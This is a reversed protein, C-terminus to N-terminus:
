FSVKNLELTMLRAFEKPFVSRATEDVRQVVNRQRIMEPISLTKLARIPKRSRGERAFIMVLGGRTEALFGRKVLMRPRDKRIKVTVGLRKKGFRRSKRGKLTVKKPKASFQVLGIRRGTYILHQATIDGGPVSTIKLAQAVLAAKINYRDRLARSAQTAARKGTTRIARNTARTVKVPGLFRRFDETNEFRLSFDTM